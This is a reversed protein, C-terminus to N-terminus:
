WGRRGDGRNNRARSPMAATPNCNPRSRPLRQNKTDNLRPVAASCPLLSDGGHLPPVGNRRSVLVKHACRQVPPRRVLAVVAGEAPAAGGQEVQHVIRAGDRLKKRHDLFMAFQRKRAKACSRELLVKSLATLPLCRAATRYLNLAMAREHLLLEDNGIHHFKKGANEGSFSRSPPKSCPLTTCPVPSAWHGHVGNTLFADSICPM